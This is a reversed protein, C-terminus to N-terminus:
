AVAFRTFQRVNVPHFGIVIDSAPIGLKILEEAILIDSNNALIWIKGNTKIHFHFIVSYIYRKEYWGTEVLQFHNNNKDAIVQFEIGPIVKDKSEEQLYNKLITQYGKIKKDM